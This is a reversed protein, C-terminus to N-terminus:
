EVEKNLRKEILDLIEDDFIDWSKSDEKINEFADFLKSDCPCRYCLLRLPCLNCQTEKCILDGVKKENALITIKKDVLFSVHIYLDKRKNYLSIGHDYTDVVHLIEGNVLLKDNFSINMDNLLNESSYIM